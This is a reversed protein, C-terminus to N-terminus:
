RLYHSLLRERLTQPSPREVQGRHVLSLYGTEESVILVLADTAESLGIGARHRTGYSPPLDLKESLPLMCRV